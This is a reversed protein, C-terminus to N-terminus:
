KLPPVNCLFRAQGSALPCAALIQADNDVGPTATWVARAVGDASAQVTISTHGNEFTGLDFSTWSVPARPPVQVALTVSGGKPVTHGPAVLQRIPPVGPAADASQYCRGPAITNCYEHPAARYAAPDFPPPPANPSFREPPGGAKAAAILSARQAEVDVPVVAVAAPDWGPARPPPSLPERTTSM